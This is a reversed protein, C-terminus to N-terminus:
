RSGSPRSTTTSRTRWFPGIDQLKVNGSADRDRAAEPVLDQGAGEAVVVM